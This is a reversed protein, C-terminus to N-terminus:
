QKPMMGIKALEQHILSQFTWHYDNSTMPSFNGLQGKKFGDVSVLANGERCYQAMVRDIAKQILADSYHRSPMVYTKRGLVVDVAEGRASNDYEHIDEMGNFNGDQYKNTVAEVQKTSPGDTWSINMSNHDARVSFKVGPWTRQLETKANKSANNTVAWPYRERLEATLKVIDNAKQAAAQERTWQDTVRKADRLQILRNVEDASAVGDRIQICTFPSNAGVQQGTSESGDEFIVTYGYGYQGGKDCVVGNDMKHAQFVRQGIPLSDTEIRRFNSLSYVTATM